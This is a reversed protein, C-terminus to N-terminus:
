LTKIDSYPIGNERMIQEAQRRLRIDFRVGYGCGKRSYEGDLKVSAADIGREKLLKQAKMAYTLSRLTILCSSM